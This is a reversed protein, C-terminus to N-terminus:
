TGQQLNYSGYLGWIKSRLMIGNEQIKSLLVYKCAFSVWSIVKGQSEKCHSTTSKIKSYQNYQLKYHIKILLM